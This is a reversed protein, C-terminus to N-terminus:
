INEFWDICKYFFWFYAAGSLVCVAFGLVDFEMM